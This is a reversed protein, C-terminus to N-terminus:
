CGGQTQELIAQTTAPDRRTGQADIAPPMDPFLGTTAHHSHMVNSMSKHQLQDRGNAESPGVQALDLAPTYHCRQCVVPEDARGSVPDFASLLTTGHKQDHLRLINLDSAWEVSVANPVTGEAPDDISFTVPALNAIASGNGGDEVAAHCGQCEAEGSIPMVTDLTAIV